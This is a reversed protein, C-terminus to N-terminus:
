DFLNAVFTQVQPALQQDSTDFEEYYQSYFREVARGSASKQLYEGVIHQTAKDMTDRFRVYREIVYENIVVGNHQTVNTLLDKVYSAINSYAM